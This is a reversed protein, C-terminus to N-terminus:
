FMSRFTCPKFYIILINVIWFAWTTSFFHQTISPMKCKADGPFLMQIYNLEESHAEHQSEGVEAAADDKLSLASHQKHCLIKWQHKMYKKDHLFSQYLICTPLLLLYESHIHQAEDKFQKTRDSGHPAAAGRRNPLYQIIEIIKIRCHFM